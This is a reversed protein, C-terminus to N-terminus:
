DEYESTFTAVKGDITIYGVYEYGKITATGIYQSNTGKYKIIGPKTTIVEWGTGDFPAFDATPRSTVTWKNTTYKKGGTNVAFGCHGKPKPSNQRACNDLFSRLARNAAAEGDDTLTVPVDLQEPAGSQVFSPIDLTQPVLEFADSRVSQTIDYAGPLVAFTHQGTIAEADLEVGNVALGFGDPAMWTLDVTPLTRGDIRWEGGVQVLQLVDTWGGSRTTIDVTVQATSGSERSDTVEYRTVRNDAKTDVADSLVPSEAAGDVRLLAQGVRGAVLEDLYASVAAKPSRSSAILSVIVIIAVIVLVLAGGAIGLILLLRRRAAPDAPAAPAPPAAPASAAPAPPASAAPAPPTRAASAAAPTTEPAPEPTPGA